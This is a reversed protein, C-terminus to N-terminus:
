LTTTSVAALEFNLVGGPFAGRINRRILGLIRNARSTVGNIYKTWSMNSSLTLGLYPYDEVSTLFSGGLHCKTSTTNRRLSFKMSHCKGQTSSCRGSSPGNTFDTWSKNSYSPMKQTTSPEVYFATMQSYTYTQLFALLDNIFTFFLLLGLVTGQPVGSTVLSWDSSKGDIVVRQSQQTLFNEM